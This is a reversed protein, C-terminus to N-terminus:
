DEKIKEISAQGFLCLGSNTVVLAITGLCVWYNSDKYKALIAEGLLSLGFGFLLLGSIAYLLWKMKASMDKKRFPLSFNSVSIFTPFAIDLKRMLWGSTWTLTFPIRFVSPVMM